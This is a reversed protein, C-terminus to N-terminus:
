VASSFAVCHAWRIILRDSLDHVRTVIRYSAQPGARATTGVATPPRDTGVEDGDEADGRQREQDRPRQQSSAAKVARAVAGPEVRLELGPEGRLRDGVREALSLGYDGAQGPEVAAPQEGLRRGARQAKGADTDEGATVEVQDKRGASDDARGDHLM